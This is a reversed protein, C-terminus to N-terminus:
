QVAPNALPKLQPEGLDNQSRISARKTKEGSHALRFIRLLRLPLRNESAPQGKRVPPSRLSLFIM